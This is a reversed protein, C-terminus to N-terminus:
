IRIFKRKKFGERAGRSASNAENLSQSSITLMQSNELAAANKANELCKSHPPGGLFAGM